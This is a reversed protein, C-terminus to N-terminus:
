ASRRLLLVELAATMSGSKMAAVTGPPKTSSLHVDTM